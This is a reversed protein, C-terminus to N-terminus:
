PHAPNKYTPRSQEAEDLRAEAVLSFEDKLLEKILATVVEPARTGFEPQPAKARTCYDFWAQAEYGASTAILLNRAAQVDETRQFFLRSM